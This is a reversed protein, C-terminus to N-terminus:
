KRSGYARQSIEFLIVLHMLRDDNRDAIAVPLVLAMAIQVGVLATGRKQTRQFFLHHWPHLLM